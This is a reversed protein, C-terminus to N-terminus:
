DLQEIHGAEDIAFQTDFSYWHDDISKRSGIAVRHVKTGDPNTSAGGYSVRLPPVQGEAPADLRNARVLMAVLKNQVGIPITRYAEDTKKQLQSIEEHAKNTPEPEHNVYRVIADWDDAKLGAFTCGFRHMPKGGQQVAETEHVDVRVAIFRSGLHLLLNITKGPPAEALMFVVHKPSIELGTGPKQVHDAVLWAVPFADSRCPQGRWDEHRFLGLIGDIM